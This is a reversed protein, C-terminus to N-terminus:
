FRKSIPRRKIPRLMRLFLWIQVCLIQGFKAMDNPHELGYIVNLSITSQLIAGKFPVTEGSCMICDLGFEM